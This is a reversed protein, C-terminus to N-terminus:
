GEEKDERPETGKEVLMQAVEKHGKSSAAQLANGYEGGPANADAGRELLMQVVEKNGGSAAARLANSYWSGKSRPMSQILPFGPEQLQVRLDFQEDSEKLANYQRFTGTIPAALSALFICSPGLNVCLVLPITEDPDRCLPGVHDSLAERM